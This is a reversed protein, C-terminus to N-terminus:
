SCAPLMLALLEDASRLHVGTFGRDPWEASAAAVPKATPERTFRSLPPPMSLHDTGFIRWSLLLLPHLPYREGDDQVVEPHHDQQAGYHELREHHVGVDEVVRGPRELGRHLEHGDPSWGVEERGEAEEAPEGADRGDDRAPTYLRRTVPQQAAHDHHQALPQERHRKEPGPFLDHEHLPRLHMRSGVQPLDGLLELGQMPRPQREVRYARRRYEDPEQPEVAVPDCGPVCVVPCRFGSSAPGRRAVVFIRSSSVMFGVIRSVSRLHSMIERRAAMPRTLGSKLM